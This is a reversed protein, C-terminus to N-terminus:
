KMGLDKESLRFVHVIDLEYAPIYLNMDGTGDDIATVAASGVTAGCEIEFVLEYAPVESPHSPPSDPSDQLISQATASDLVTGIPVTSGERTGGSSGVGEGVEFSFGSGERGEKKPAFVYASGTCDGAILILPLSHPKNPMRFVYPFGPAGPSFIGGWGRVKFGSCVTYRPWDSLLLPLLPTAKARTAKAERRHELTTATAAVSSAEVVSSASISASVSAVSPSAPPDTPLAGATTLVPRSGAGTREGGGAPVNAGASLNPIKYAFLSGGSLQDQQNGETGMLIDPDGKEETMKFAGGNVGADVVSRRWRNPTKVRPFSGEIARFAM